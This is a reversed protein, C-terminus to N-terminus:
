PSQLIDEALLDLLDDNFSETPLRRQGTALSESMLEDLATSHELGLAHGLEHSIISSNGPCLALPNPFYRIGKRPAPWTKLRNIKAKRTILPSYGNDRSTAKSL